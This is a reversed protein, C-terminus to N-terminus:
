RHKAVQSPAAHFHQSSSTDRHLAGHGDNGDKDIAKPRYVIRRGSSLERMAFRLCGAHGRSSRGSAHFRESRCFCRRNAEDDFVANAVSVARGM